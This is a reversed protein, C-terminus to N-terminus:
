RARGCCADQEALSRQNMLISNARDIIKCDSLATRAEDLEAQMKSFANFRRVALELVLIVREKRLGDVL